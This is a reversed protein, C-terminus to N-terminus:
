LLLANASQRLRPLNEGEIYNAVIYFAYGDRGVEHVSALQPHNLQATSQGERLFRRLDNEALSRSHPLKLKVFRQLRTDWAKWVEGMSGAGLRERLEFHAIRSGTQKAAVRANADGNSADKSFTETGYQFSTADIQAAYEPFEDLYQEQTPKEGFSRRYELDVLLLECFLKNRHHEDNPGIFDAINPRGGSRWTSEFADCREDIRDDVSSSGNNAVDRSM